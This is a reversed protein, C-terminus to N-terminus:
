VMCGGGGWCLGLWPRECEEQQTTLRGKIANIEALLNLPSDKSKREENENLPSGRARAVIDSARLSQVEHHALGRRGLVIRKACARLALGRDSDAM